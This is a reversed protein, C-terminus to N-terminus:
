KKERKAMTQNELPADDHNFKSSGDTNKHYYHDSRNINKNANHLENVFQSTLFDVIANKKMRNKDNM